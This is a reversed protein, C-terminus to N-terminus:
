CRATVTRIADYLLQSDLPHRIPSPVTTADIQIKHGRELGRAKAWQVLIQQIGEWTAAQVRSLNEQLSSKGPTWGWPLRCFGRFSQSDALHFALKQYSLQQWHKLVAIRLVQEASLGPSGNQPEVKDSLDQLVLGLIEPNEDLIESIKRLEDSLRHDPWVPALPRQQERNKRM